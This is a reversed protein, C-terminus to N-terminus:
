SFIAKSAEYLAVLSKLESRELVKEILNTVENLNFPKQIFDYAGKKMAAVATEITGFGTTMIVELDPDLKKIEQLVEVGDMGPMKVDTIVLQFRDRKVRELGERGNMATVVQYGQGGLEYSLLDLMGKEDDIILIRASQRDYM